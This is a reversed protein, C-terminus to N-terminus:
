TACIVCLQETTLELLYPHQYKNGVVIDGALGLTDFCFCEPDSKDTEGLWVSCFGGNLFVVEQYSSYWNKGQWSDLGAPPTNDYRLIDGKFCKTGADVILGTYQMLVCESLPYPNENVYDHEQITTGAPLWRYAEYETLTGVRFMVQTPRHFARFEIPRIPNYM